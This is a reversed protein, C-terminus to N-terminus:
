KLNRKITLVNKKFQLIFSINEMLWIKWIKKAWLSSIKFNVHESSAIGSGLRDILMKNM